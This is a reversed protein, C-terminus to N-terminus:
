EQSVREFIMPMLDVHLEAPHKRVPEFSENDAGKSYDNGPFLVVAM